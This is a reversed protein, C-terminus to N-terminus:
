DSLAMLTHKCQGVGLGICLCIFFRKYLITYLHKCQVSVSSLVSEWQMRHVKKETDTETETHISWNVYTDYEKMVLM